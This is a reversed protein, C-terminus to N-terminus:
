FTLPDGNGNDIIVSRADARAFYDAWWAIHADGQHAQDGPRLVYSVRVDVRSLNPILFDEGVQRELRDVPPYTPRYHSVISSNELMDSFIILRIEDARRFRPSRSINWLATLLATDSPPVDDLTEITTDLLNGFQEEWILRREDNVAGVFLAEALRQWLGQERSVPSCESFLERPQGYARDNVLYITLRSFRPLLEATERLELRLREIDPAPIPDSQDVVFIAHVPPAGRRVCNHDDTEVLGAQATEYASWLVAVLAFTVALFIAFASWAKSSGGSRPPDRYRDSLSM